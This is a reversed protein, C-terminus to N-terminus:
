SREEVWVRFSDDRLPNDQRAVWVLDVALRRRNSEHEEVGRVDHIELGDFQSGLIPHRAMDALRETCMAVELRM